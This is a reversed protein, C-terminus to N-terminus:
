KGAAVTVLRKSQVQGIVVDKAPVERQEDFAIAGTVGDFKASKTGVGALYDRIEQRTTAGNALARRLLYIIDYAGAGRHDPLLGPNRAQYAKVFAANRDGPRDPLYASSIYMGEAKGGAEIGIVGDGALVKPHIGV